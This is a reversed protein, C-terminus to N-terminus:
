KFIKSLGTQNCKIWLFCVNDFRLRGSHLGDSEMQQKKHFTSLKSNSTRYVDLARKLKRKDNPHIRRASEPDILLLQNYLDEEDTENSSDSNCSAVDVLFDWLLAEIYYNTGGVIIPIKGDILLGDIQFIHIYCDM